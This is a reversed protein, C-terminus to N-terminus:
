IRSARVTSVFFQNKEIGPTVYVVAVPSDHIAIQQSVARRSSSVLQLKDKGISVTKFGNEPGTLKTVDLKFDLVTEGRVAKPTFAMKLGEDVQAMKRDRHTIGDADVTSTVQRLYSHTKGAKVPLTAGFPLARRASTEKSTSFGSLARRVLLEPSEGAPLVVVTVPAVDTEGASINSNIKAGPINSIADAVNKFPNIDTVSVVDVSVQTKRADVAFAPSASICAAAAAVLVARYFRSM